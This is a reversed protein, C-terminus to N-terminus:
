FAKVIVQAAVTDTAPGGRAYTITLAGGPMAQDSALVSKANATSASQLTTATGGAPTITPLSSGARQAGWFLGLDSNVVASTTTATISTVNGGNNGETERIGGVGGVFVVIGM